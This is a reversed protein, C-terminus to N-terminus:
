SCVVQNRGQEKAQRVATDAKRIMEELSDCRDITVGVSVTVPVRVGSSRLYISEVSRRVREFAIPADEPRKILTLCVMEESGYRGILDGTRLTRQIVAAISRLAQDGIQHGHADNIQKLQDVNVLAAAMHLSNRCANAYFAKGVEFIHRRNYLGTLLDRSAAERIQRMYGIMNTNQTVRCYFEEVEFPKQLFDNAGAKILRATLGPQSAESLGIIALQEREHEVRIAKILELGTMVPLNLDTIVLSVDPTRKILTLAERGNAAMFTTFRYNDLLGKLYARSPGSNDVILVKVQHNERLRAVLYAVHEMENANDKLIYDIIEAAHMHGRMQEDPNQTLVIVPIAQARVLDVIEGDSADPLDSEVVACAFREGGFALLEQAEAFTGATEVRVGDLQSLSAVLDQRLSSDDDVVLVTSPIDADLHHVLRALKSM